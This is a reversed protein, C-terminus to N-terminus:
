NRTEEEFFLKIDPQKQQSLNKAEPKNSRNNPKTVNKPTTKQQKQQKQNQKHKIIDMLTRTERTTENSTTRTKNVGQQQETQKMKPKTGLQQVVNSTQQKTQIKIAQKSQKYNEYGSKLGSHPM